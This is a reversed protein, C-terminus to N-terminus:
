PQHSRKYAVFRALNVVAENARAKLEPASTGNVAKAMARARPLAADLLALFGRPRFVAADCAHAEDAYVELLQDIAEVAHAPPTAPLAAVLGVLFDGVDGNVNVPAPDLALRGLVGICKVGPSQFADDRRPPSGQTAQYLAVFRRHEGPALPARGGLGRALAWALGTVRDALGVDATDAALLTSVVRQWLSRAAPAWARVVGANAAEAPDFLSVSWAVNNLVSLALVRLKAPPSDADADLPADQTALRTLPPLATQILAHLVPLDDADPGRDSDAATVMEMDAMMEDEEMEDGMENDDDDDDDDENDDDQGQEDQESEDGGDSALAGADAMVQDDAVASSETLSTGISALTELALQQQELASSWGGAHTEAPPPPAASLAKALTPVLVSDDAAAAAAALAGDSAFVNHLIACALIGDAGVHDKLAMLAQLCPSGRPSALGRALAANDECLVMLCALADTRLDAVADDNAQREHAVLHFLLQSLGPSAAVADFVQDNAEALGSLLAVLSAAISNVFGREAKPLASFPPQESRLQQVVQAWPDAPPGLSPLKTGGRSPPLFPFALPLRVAEAAHCMPTLVDQRYLHVCFDADEERALLQLIGWGAARSEVPADTLTQTLLTHVLHERLLLKRCRADDAVVAAAAAAAGRAGPDAGRLQRVVPLVKAERLAALEPDAPPKVPRAVPDRRRAHQGGRSRRSKAM